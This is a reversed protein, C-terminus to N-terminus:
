FRTTMNNMTSANTRQNQEFNNRDLALSTEARYYYTNTRARLSNAIENLKKIFADADAGVWGNKIATVLKQYYDGQVESEYNRLWTKYADLLQQKGSESRGYSLDTIGSIAM